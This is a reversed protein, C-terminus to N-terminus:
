DEVPPGSEGPSSAKETFPASNTNGGSAAKKIMRAFSKRYSRQVVGDAVAENIMEKIMQRLAPLKLRM